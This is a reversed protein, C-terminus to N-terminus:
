GAASVIRGVGNNTLCKAVFPSTMSRLLASYGPEFRIEDGPATRQATATVLHDSSAALITVGAPAVLDAPDTDQRGVALITQWVEGRDEV